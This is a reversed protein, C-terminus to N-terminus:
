RTELFRRIWPFIQKHSLQAAPDGRLPRLQQRGGGRSVQACLASGTKAPLNSHLGRFQVMQPKKHRESREKSSWIEQHRGSAAPLPALRETRGLFSESISALCVTIWEFIWNSIKSTENQFQCAWKEPWLKKTFSSISIPTFRPTVLQWRTACCGLHGGIWRKTTARFNSWKLDCKLVKNHLFDVSIIHFIKVQGPSSGPVEWKALYSRLRWINPPAVCPGHEDKSRRASGSIPSKSM